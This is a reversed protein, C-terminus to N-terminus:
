KGVREGRRGRATDEPKVLQAGALALDDRENGKTKPKKKLFFLQGKKKNRKGRKPIPSM